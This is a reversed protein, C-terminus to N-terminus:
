AVLQSGLWSEAEPVERFVRAALGRAQCYAEFMRSLGYHLDDGALLACRGSLMDANEAVLGAIGRLEDADRDETSRRVDFLLHWRRAPDSKGAERLANGFAALGSAYDVDGEAIVWLTDGRQEFSLPMAPVM